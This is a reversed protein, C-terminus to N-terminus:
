LKGRVDVLGLVGPSRKGKHENVYFYYKPDYEINKLNERMMAHRVFDLEVNDFLIWKPKILLAVTLDIFVDKLQHSGDIFIMDFQEDDYSETFYRKSDKKYHKVINPFKEELCFGAKDAFDTIDLTIFTDLQDFLTNMLTGSHGSFTGIELVKKPKVIENIEKFANQIAPDNVDLYGWGQEPIQTNPIPCHSVDIKMYAIKLWILM